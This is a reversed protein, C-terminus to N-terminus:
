KVSESASKEAKKEARRIMWRSIWDNIIFLREIILLIVALASLIDMFPFQAIFSFADSVPNVIWDPLWNSLTDRMQYIASTGGVYTIVKHQLTQVYAGTDSTVTEILHRLSEKM